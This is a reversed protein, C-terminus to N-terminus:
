VLQDNDDFLLQGKEQMANMTQLLRQHAAQVQEVPRPPGQLVSECDQRLGKSLRSLLKERTEPGSLRLALGLDEIKVQRLFDQWMSLTLKTLDDLTLLHTAIQSAMVPDRQKIEEFIRQRERPSLAQLM